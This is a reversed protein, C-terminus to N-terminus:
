ESPDLLYVRQFLDAGPLQEIAALHVRLKGDTVPLRAEVLGPHQGMWDISPDVDGLAGPIAVFPHTDEFISPLGLLSLWLQREEDIVQGTAGSSGILTIPGIDPLEAVLETVRPTMPTEPDALRRLVSALYTAAEAPEHAWEEIVRRPFSVDADLRDLSILAAARV